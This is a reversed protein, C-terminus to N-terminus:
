LRSGGGLVPGVEWQVGEGGPHEEDKARIATLGERNGRLVKETFLVIVRRGAARIWLKLELTPAEEHFFPFIGRRIRGPVRVAGGELGMGEHAQVLKGGAAKVLQSRPFAVQTGVRRPVIVGRGGTGAAAFGGLVEHM